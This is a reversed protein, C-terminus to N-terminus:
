PKQENNVGERAPPVHNAEPMQHNKLFGWQYGM